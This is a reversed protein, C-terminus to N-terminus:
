RTCLAIFLGGRFVHVVPIRVCACVCITNFTLKVKYSLQHTSLIKGYMYIYMYQVNHAYNYRILSLTM